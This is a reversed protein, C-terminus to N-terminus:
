AVLNPLCPPWSVSRQKRLATAQWNWEQPLWERLVPWFSDSGLVRAHCPWEAILGHALTSSRRMALAAPCNAQRIASEFIRPDPKMAGVECSTTVADFRDLVDWNQRVFDIHTRCTNSLLVLRVGANRLDDLLPLMPENLEFINGLAHRLDDLSVSVGLQQEFQQHFENESLRGTEIADQFGDRFLFDRIGAKDAGSIGAINQIMRDHSFFVLVNGMDFICTQIPM